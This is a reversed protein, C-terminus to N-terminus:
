WGREIMTKRQTPLGEDDYLSSFAEPWAPDDIFSLLQSGVTQGVERGVPIKGAAGIPAYFDRSSTWSSESVWPDFIVSRTGGPQKVAGLLAVTARRRRAHSGSWAEKRRSLPISGVQLEGGEESIASLGVSCSAGREM